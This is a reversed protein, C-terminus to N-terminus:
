CGFPPAPLYIAPWYRQSIEPVFGLPACDAIARADVGDMAQVALLSHNVQPAQGHRVTDFEEIVRGSVMGFYHSLARMDCGGRALVYSLPPAGGTKTSAGAVETAIWDIDRPDNLVDSVVDGVVTLSPRSLPSVALKGGGIGLIRCSFAFHLLTCGLRRHNRVVYIGCLGHDGYHDRVHLLGAQITHDPWYRACPPVRTMRHRLGEGAVLEADFGAGRM